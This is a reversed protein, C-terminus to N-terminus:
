ATRCGKQSNCARCLVRLNHRAHTGGKAVPLIHDVTLDTTAQCEECWPRAAILARRITPWDGLYHQRMHNRLRQAMRYCRTCRGNM